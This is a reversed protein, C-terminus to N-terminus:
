NYTDILSQFLIKVKQQELEPTTLTVLEEITTKTYESIPTFSTTSLLFTNFSKMLEKFENKRSDKLKKNRMETRSDIFQSLMRESMNLIQSFDEMSFDNDILECSKWQWSISFHKVSNIHYWWEITFEGIQKSGKLIWTAFKPVYNPRSVPYVPDDGYMAYGLHDDIIDEQITINVTKNFFFERVNSPFSELTSRYEPDDKRAESVLNRKLWIEVDNWDQLLPVSIWFEEQFVKRMHLVLKQDLKTDITFPTHEPLLYWMMREAVCRIDGTSVKFSISDHSLLSNTVWGFNPFQPFTGISGVTQLFKRRNFNPGKLLYM